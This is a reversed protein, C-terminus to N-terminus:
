NCRVQILAQCHLGHLLFMTCVQFMIDTVKDVTTSAEYQDTVIANLDGRRVSLWRQGICVLEICMKEKPMIASCIALAHRQVSNHVACRFTHVAGLLEHVVVHAMALALAPSAGDALQARTFAIIDESSGEELLGNSFVVTDNFVTANGTEGANLKETLSIAARRLPHQDKAPADELM